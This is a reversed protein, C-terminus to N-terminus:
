TRVDLRNSCYKKQSNTIKINAKRTYKTHIWKWISSKRSTQLMCLPFHLLEKRPSWLLSHLYSFLNTEQKNRVQVTLSSSYEKWSLFATLLLCFYNGLNETTLPPNALPVWLQVPQSRKELIASSAHYWFVNYGSTFCLSIGFCVSAGQLTKDLSKYQDKAFDEGTRQRALM